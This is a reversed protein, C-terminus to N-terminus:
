IFNNQVLAVDTAALAIHVTSLQWILMCDHTGGPVNEMFIRFIGDDSQAGYYQVINQHQLHRHLQIEEQLSQFQRQFLFLLAILM